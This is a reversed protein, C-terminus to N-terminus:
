TLFITTKIPQIIHIKLNQHQFVSFVLFVRGESGPTDAQKNEYLSSYYLQHIIVLNFLLCHIYFSRVYVGFWMDQM